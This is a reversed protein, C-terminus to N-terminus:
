MATAALYAFTMVAGVISLLALVIRRSPTLMPVAVAWAVLGALVGVIVGGVASAIQDVGMDSTTLVRSAVTGGCLAGLLALAPLLLASSLFSKV